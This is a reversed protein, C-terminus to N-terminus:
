KFCLDITEDAKDLPYKWKLLARRVLNRLKARVSTGLKKISNADEVKFKNEPIFRIKLM